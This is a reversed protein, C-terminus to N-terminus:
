KLNQLLRNLTSREAESQDKGSRYQLLALATERPKACMLGMVLKAANSKIDEGSLFGKGLYKNLTLVKVETVFALDSSNIDLAQLLQGVLFRGGRQKIEKAVVLVHVQDRSLLHLCKEWCPPLKASQSYESHRLVLINNNTAFVVRLTSAQHNGLDGFDLSFEAAQNPRNSCKIAGRKAPPIASSVERGKSKARPPFIVVQGTSTPRLTPGAQRDSVSVYDASFPNTRDSM